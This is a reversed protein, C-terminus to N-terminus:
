RKCGKYTGINSKLYEQLEDLIKQKEFGYGNKSNIYIKKTPTITDIFRIIESQHYNSDIILFINKQLSSAWGLEVSVGMSVEPVAIIIDANKVMKYDIPTCVDGSGKQKNNGFAEEILPFYVNNSFSKCTNHINDMLELFEEPFGSRVYKSIPCAIYIKM